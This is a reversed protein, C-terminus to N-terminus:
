KAAGMRRNESKWQVEIAKHLKEGSRGRNGFFCDLWAKLKADPISFNHSECDLLGNELEAVTKFRRFVSDINKNAQRIKTRSVFSLDYDYEDPSWFLVPKEQYLFDFAVSSLDTVLCSATRIYSSVSHTDVLKIEAPVASVDDGLNRRLAHHIALVVEVGRRALEKLVSSQLLRAFNAYYASAEYTEKTRFDNRWSLAILVCKRVLKRKKLYDYRPLGCHIFRFSVDMGSAAAFAKMKDAEDAGTYNVVNFRNCNTLMAENQWIWAVGHRLYVYLLRPCGKFYEPLRTPMYSDEAVVAKVRYLYPLIRDLLETSNAGVDSIAMVDSAYASDAVMRAYFSNKAYTVYKAPVGARKLYSFFLWSDICEVDPDGLFSVVIYMDQEIKNRAAEIRSIVQRYKGSFVSAPEADKSLMTELEGLLKGYEGRFAVITESPLRSMERKIDSLLVPYKSLLWRMKAVVYRLILNREHQERTSFIDSHPIKFMEPVFEAAMVSAVEANTQPSRNRLDGLRIMCYTSKAVSMSNASGLLYLLTANPAVTWAPAGPLHESLFSKKYCHQNVDLGFCAKKCDQLSFVDKKPFNGANKEYAWVQERKEYTQADFYRDPVIIMDTGAESAQACVAAHNEAVFNAADFIVVYEGNCYTLLELIQLRRDNKEKLTRCSFRRDGKMFRVITADIAASQTTKACIVEFDAISQRALSQLARPLYFECADAFVLYTLKPDPSAEIPALPVPHPSHVAPVSFGSEIERCHLQRGLTRLWRASDVWYMLDHSDYFGGKRLLYAACDMCKEGIPTKAFRTTAGIVRKFFFGMLFFNNEKNLFSLIHNFIPYCDPLRMDQAQTEQTSMTGTATRVYKYWKDHFLYFRRARSFVFFAFAEDEQKLGAPFVLNNGVIFDRKYVRNVVITSFVTKETMRHYGPKLSTRFIGQGWKLLTDSVDSFDFEVEGLFQVYDLDDANAFPALVRPYMRSDIYDDSDVFQIYQGRAIAIGRNRASGQGNNSQTLVIVRQDTEAYRRLVDLSDDESGDNVAIIEINPVSVAAISDLCKEVKEAANYVPIIFTVLPSYIEQETRERVDLCGVIEDLKKRSQEATERNKSWVCALIRKRYKVFVDDELEDRLPEDGTKKAYFSLLSLYSFMEDDDAIKAQTSKIVYRRHHYFGGAASHLKRAFALLAANGCGEFRLGTSKLWAADILLKSLQYKPADSVACLNLYGGDVMAYGVAIDLERKELYADRINIFTVLESAVRDLAINLGDALDATKVAFVGDREPLSVDATDDTFVYVLGVEGISANLLLRQLAAEVFQEQGIDVTAIVALKKM